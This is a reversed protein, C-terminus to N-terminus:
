RPGSRDSPVTLNRAESPTVTNPRKRAASCGLPQKQQKVLRSRALVFIGLDPIPQPLSAVARERDVLARPTVQEAGLWVTAASPARQSSHRRLARDRPPMASPPSVLMQRHDQPAAAIRGRQHEQDGGLMGPLDPAISAKEGASYRSSLCNTWRAPRWTPRGPRRSWRASARRSQHPAISGRRRARPPCAVTRGRWPRRGRNKSASVRACDSRHRPRRSRLARSGRHRSAGSSCSGILNFRIM